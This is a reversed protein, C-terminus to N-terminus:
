FTLRSHWSPVEFALITGLIGQGFSKTVAQLRRVTLCSQTVQAPLVSVNFLSLLTVNATPLADNRLRLIVNEEANAHRDNPILLPFM